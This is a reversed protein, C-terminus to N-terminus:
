WRDPFFTACAAIADRGNLVHHAEHGLIELLMCSIEAAGPYDDVVLVRM